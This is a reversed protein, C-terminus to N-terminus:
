CWGTPRRRVCPPTSVTSMPPSRQRACNWAAPRRASCRTWARSLAGLDLGHPHETRLRTLTLGSPDAGFGDGYPGLRLMMDLRQETLTGTDLMKRLEDPERGHVPSGPLATAKALTSTIILEDLAAPDGDTGSAIM